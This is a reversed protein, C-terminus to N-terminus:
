LYQKKSKLLKPGVDCPRMHNNNNIM